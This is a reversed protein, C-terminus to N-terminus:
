CGLIDSVQAKHSFLCSCEQVDEISGELNKFTRKKTSKLSALPGAPIRVVVPLRDASALYNKIFFLIKSKKQKQKKKNTQKKKENEGM